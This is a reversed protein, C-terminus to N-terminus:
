RPIGPKQLTPVTPRWHAPRSGPGESAKMPDDSVRSVGATAAVTDANSSIADWCPRKVRGVAVGSLTKAPRRCAKPSIPYRHRAQRRVKLLQRRSSVHAVLGRPSAPDSGVSSKRSQGSLPLRGLDRRSRNSSSLRSGSVKGTTQASVESLKGNDHNQKAGFVEWSRNVGREIEISSTEHIDILPQVATVFYVVRLCEDRCM